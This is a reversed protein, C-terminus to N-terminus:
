LLNHFMAADSCLTFTHMGMYPSTSYTPLNRLVKADGSCLASIYSM